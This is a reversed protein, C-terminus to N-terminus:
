FQTQFYEILQSSYKKFHGLEKKDWNIHMGLILDILFVFWISIGWTM